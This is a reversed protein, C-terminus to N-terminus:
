RDTVDAGGAEVRVSRSDAGTPLAVRLLVDGGTVLHPKTSVSELRLEPAAAGGASCGALTLWLATLAAPQRVLRTKMTGERPSEGVTRRGARPPWGSPRR